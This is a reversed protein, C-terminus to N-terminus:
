RSKETIRVSAENMDTIKGNPSITFLPDRSAEILSRAYYSSQKLEEVIEDRVKKNKILIIVLLFIIIIFIILSLFLLESNRTSKEHEIKRQNLLFFEESNILDIIGRIKDTLIKESATSAIIDTENLRHQRKAEILNNILITREGTVKKLAVIRLQQSQNYKTLNAFIELNSNMVVVGNYYPKLFVEDGTLLFGRLGTEINLADLLVNDSKRLVEQTHEVLNSTLKVKQTNNYLIFLVAAVIIAALFYFFIMKYKLVFKM